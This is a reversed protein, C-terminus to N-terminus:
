FDEKILVSYIRANTGLWRMFAMPNRSSVFVLHKCLCDKARQRIRSMWEKVDPKMRMEKSIWAQSVWYTLKNDIDKSVSGLLYGGLNGDDDYALWFDGTGKLFTSSAITELTQNIFGIRDGGVDIEGALAEVAKEIERFKLKPIEGKILELKM